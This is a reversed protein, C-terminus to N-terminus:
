QLKRKDVRLAEIKDMEFYCYHLPGYQVAPFSSVFLGLIGAVSEIAVHPDNNLAIEIHAKIKAVKENTLYVRMQVSDILFGLFILKQTPVFVSRAPHIMFGLSDYLNVTANVTETCGQYAENILFFDDIYSSIVHGSSHLTSLPAKM